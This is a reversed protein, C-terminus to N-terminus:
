AIPSLSFGALDMNIKELVRQINKKISPRGIILKHTVSIEEGYVGVPQNVKKGDVMYENPIIDYIENIGVPMHRSREKLSEIIQDTIPTEENLQHNVKHDISHLSQGGLGVYIKGIKCHSRNELKTIIRKVKAATEEVNQICGRKICSDSPEEEIASVKLIDDETKAGIIGVIKSTGIDIAAIFETLEM